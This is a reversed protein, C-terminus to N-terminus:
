SIILLLLFNNIFLAIYFLNLLYIRIQRYTIENKDENSIEDINKSNQTHSDM